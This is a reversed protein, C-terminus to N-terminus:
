ARGPKSKQCKWIKHQIIAKLKYQKGSLSKKEEQLWVAKNRMPRYSQFTTLVLSSYM